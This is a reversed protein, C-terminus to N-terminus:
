FYDLALTGSKASFFGISRQGSEHRCKVLSSCLSLSFSGRLKKPIRNERSPVFSGCVRLESSSIRSRDRSTPPKVSKLNRSFHGGRRRTRLPLASLPFRQLGRSPSKPKGSIIARSFLGAGSIDYKCSFCVAQAAKRLSGRSSAEYISM